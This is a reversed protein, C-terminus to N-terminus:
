LTFMFVSDAYSWEMQDSSSAEEDGREGELKSSEEIVEHGQSASDRESLETWSIEPTQEGEPSSPSSSDGEFAKRLDVRNSNDESSM